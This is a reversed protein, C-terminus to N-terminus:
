VKPFVDLRPLSFTWLILSGPVLVEVYNPSKPPLLAQPGVKSYFRAVDWRPEIQM